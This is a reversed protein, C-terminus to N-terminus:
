CLLLCSMFLLSPRKICFGVEDDANGHLTASQWHTSNSKPNWLDSPSGGEYALPSWFSSGASGQRNQTDCGWIPRSPMWRPPGSAWYKYIYIYWAPCQMIMGVFCNRCPGLRNSHTFVCSAFPQVALENAFVVNSFM